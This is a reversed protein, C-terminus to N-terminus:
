PTLPTRLRPIRFVSPLLYNQDQYIFVRGSLLVKADPGANQAHADIRHLLRCPLLPMPPDSQGEADADFVFLFAGTSTRRVTGRRDLLRAGERMLENREADDLEQDLDSRRPLPGVARELRDIISETSDGAEDAQGDTEEDGVTEKPQDVAPEPEERGILLPPHTPLLYNRNGFVYVEGTLEFVLRADPASEIMREIEQLQTCPMLTLVHRPSQEDGEDIVFEWTGTNEDRHVRGPVRLLTSGERLLQARPTEPKTGETEAASQARVIGSGAILLAVGISLLAFFRGPHLIPM